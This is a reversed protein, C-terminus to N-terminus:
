KKTSLRDGYWELGAWAANLMTERFDIQLWKALSELVNKKPLDELKIVVYENEHIEDIKCDELM